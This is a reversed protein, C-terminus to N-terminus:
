PGKELRRVTFMGENVSEQNYRVNSFRLITKHVTRGGQKKTMHIETATWINDIPRMHKVDFYKIYGGEKLFHVARVVMYNDQRVFLISKTYGTEEIVRRSRPISEIVWVKKGYVVAEKQKRYFTYRYDELRRRTLDAYSFDSGMFSRSKNRSAIRKTKKLAPLYLWQDDDKGAARYDYTLFGTGRVDAPSLFFMLRYRDEGKKMGYSRITRTRRKGKKDILIMQIDAIYRDGDDRDDVKQMVARAEPDETGAHSLCVTLAFLVLIIIVAKEKM